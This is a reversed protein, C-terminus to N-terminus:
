TLGILRNLLFFGILGGGDAFLAWLMGYNALYCVPVLCSMRPFRPSKNVDFLLLMPAVYKLALFSIRPCYAAIGRVKGPLGNM